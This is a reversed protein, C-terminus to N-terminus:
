GQAHFSTTDLTKCLDDWEGLGTDSERGRGGAPPTGGDRVQQQTVHREIQRGLHAVPEDGVEADRHRRQAVRLRHARAGEAPTPEVVPTRLNRYGWRGLLERAKAEVWEWRAAEDPLADNMGKVASIPARSTKPAASPARRAQDADTNDNM